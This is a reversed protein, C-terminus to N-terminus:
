RKIKVKKVEQDTVVIYLGEELSIYNLGFCIDKKIILRGMIDYICVNCINKRNDIILNNSSSYIHFASTTHVKENSVESPYYYTREEAQNLSWYQEKKNWTYHIEKIQYEDEDYYYESKSDPHEKESNHSFWHLIEKKREDELYYCKMTQKRISPSIDRNTDSVVSSIRGKEDFEVVSEDSLVSYDGKEIIYFYDSQVYGKSNYKIVTKTQPIYKNYVSNYVWNVLSDVGTNTYYCQTKSLYEKSALFKEESALFKGEKTYSYLVETKEDVISRLKGNPYYNYTIKNRLDKVQDKSQKYKITWESSEYNNYWKIHVSDALIRKQQLSFDAFPDNLPGFNEQGFSSLVIVHMLLVFLIRRM